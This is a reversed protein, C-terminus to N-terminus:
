KRVAPADIILGEARKALYLELSVYEDSGYDFQIARVGFSCSRLRRHLSGLVQWELRYVPYGVGVGHSITDGRLAQGAHDVHCQSCALNLQGERRLFFARGREYYPAATGSIDVKVPMGRSQYAVFATLSLLANSEYKLPQASMNKARCTNIRQELNLLKGSAADVEPYRAAVGKMAKAVDGHCAACSKGAAGEVTQWLREGEEVWLMGPNAFDDAQLAKLEPSLFASGSVPAPNDQARPLTAPACCLAALLAAGFARSAPRM